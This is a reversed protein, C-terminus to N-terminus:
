ISGEGKKFVHEKDTDEDPPLILSRFNAIQLTLTSYVNPYLDM